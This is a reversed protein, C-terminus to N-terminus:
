KLETKLTAPTAVPSQKPQAQKTAATPAPTGAQSTSGASKVGPTAPRSPSASTNGEHEKIANNLAIGLIKSVQQPAHEVLYGLANEGAGRKAGISNVQAITTAVAKTILSTATPLDYTLKRAKYLTFLEKRLYVLSKQTRPDDMSPLGPQQKSSSSSSSAATPSTSATNGRVAALQAKITSPGSSTGVMTSSGNTAGGAVYQGYQGTPVRTNPYPLAFNRGVINHPLSKQAELRQRQRIEEQRLAEAKARAQAFERQKIRINERENIYLEDMAYLWENGRKLLRKYIKTFKICHTVSFQWGDPCYKYYPYVEKIAETIESITLGNRAAETKLVNTIMTQFSINPKSRYQEPIEDPTYVKKSSKKHPEKKLKPKPYKSPEEITKPYSFTALYSADSVTIARLPPRSRIASPESTILLVPAVLKPPPQRPPVVKGIKDLGNIRNYISSSAPPQISAPKGMLPASRIPLKALSNKRQLQQLQKKRKQEELQKKKEEKERMVGQNHEDILPELQAIEQNLLALSADIDKIEDDLADHEIGKVLRDFEHSAENKSDDDEDDDGDDIASENFEALKMLSDELAGLNESDEDLLSQIQADLLDANEENIADISTVGLDKLLENIEDNGALSKRRANSLRRIKLLSNRRNISNKRAAATTTTTTTTPTDTNSKTDATPSTAAASSSSKRSTSKATALPPETKLKTKSEDISKQKKKKKKPSSKPTPTKSYLNTKLNIADSPNFQKSSAQSEDEKNSESSSPLVFQFPIDGIQIKTGDILPVTLGKGVFVNDVFAGNRGLITIEFRQSGFNYFIKAHRRSIAKKSSLHVDVNQQLSEDNSKRGLVVQLTQVFFTFNDFDLRAYASIKSDDEESPDLLKTDSTVPVFTSKRRLEKQHTPTKKGDAPYLNPSVSTSATKSDDRPSILPRAKPDEENLNENEKLIPKAPSSKTEQSAPQTENDFLKNIEDEHNLTPVDHPVDLKIESALSLDIDRPSQLLDATSEHPEM